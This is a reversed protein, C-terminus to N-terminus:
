MLSGIGVGILMAILSIAYIGFVVITLIGFFKFLSNLNKFSEAAKDESHMELASQLKASFRYLYLVPFFYIVAIVLYLLSILTTNISISDDEMDQILPEFYSGAFLAFLVTLAIMVFGIIALIKGWKAIGRLYGVAEKNIVLSHPSFSSDELETDM